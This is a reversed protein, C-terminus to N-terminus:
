MADPPADVGADPPPPAPVDFTITPNFTGAGVFTDFEHDFLVDSANQGTGVVHLKAPGFPLQQVFQALEGLPRCPAPDTGDLKQNTDTRATVVQGGITLTLVQSSVPPSALECSAGAWSLKFLFQGSYTRAWSTYPVDVTIETNANSSGALGQATVPATVLPADNIDLPTVAITYTGVPLDIFTLQGEGCPKQMADAITPDDVHAVEVLVSAAGLDSCADSDFMWEPYHNFRWKVITSGPLNCDGTPCVPPPGGCSLLLGLGAAIPALGSTMRPLRAM